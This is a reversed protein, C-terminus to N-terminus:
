DMVAPNLAMSDIFNSFVKLSVLDLWWGYSKHSELSLLAIHVLFVKSKEGPNSSHSTSLSIGPRWWEPSNQTFSGLLEQILVHWESMGVPDMLVSKLQPNDCGWPRTRGVHGLGSGFYNRERPIGQHGLIERLAAIRCPFFFFFPKFTKNQNNSNFNPEIWKSSPETSSDIVCNPAFPFMLIAIGAHFFSKSSLVISLEM